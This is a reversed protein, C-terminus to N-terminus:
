KSVSGCLVKQYFVEIRGAIADWSFKKEALDRSRQGMVYRQEPNAWLQLVKLALDYPFPEAVLGFRGNKVFDRVDGISTVVVPKGAAMYDNIKMPFRGRNAITDNLPLWCIDCAGLFNSISSYSVRGTRYVAEPSRILKEVPADFYGILLLKAGKHSDLLINFAKAMLRMDSDFISGLYGVVLDEERLGVKRKAYETSIPHISSIDSGNPFCMISAPHIGLTVARQRLVSNIVTTGDAYGRFREEFFTEIPSLLTRLIPGREEVSGGRGFWDCWDLVLSAGQVYKWYLAPFIVTPRAEFGHIIDFSHNRAWQVRSALNLIDWGSRFVGGFLNPSEVIRVGKVQDKSSVLSLRRHPSSSLVTVSHGRRGLGRALQLARWYTGTETPNHLPMVIRM